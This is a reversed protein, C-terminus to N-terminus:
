PSMLTWCRSCLAAAVSQSPGFCAGLLVVGALRAPLATPGAPPGRLMGAMAVPTSLPIPVPVLPCLDPSPSVLQQTSSSRTPKIASPSPRASLAPSTKRVATHTSPPPCPPPCEPQAQSRGHTVCPHPSLNCCSLALSFCRMEHLLLFSGKAKSIGEWHTDASCGAEQWCSWLFLFIPALGPREGQFILVLAWQGDRALGVEVKRSQPLAPPQQCCRVWPSKSRHTASPGRGADRVRELGGARPVSSPM